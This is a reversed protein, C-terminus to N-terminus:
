RKVIFKNLFPKNFYSYRISFHNYVFENQKHRFKNLLLSFGLNQEATARDVRHTSASKLGFKAIM